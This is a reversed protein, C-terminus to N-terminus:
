AYATALISRGMLEQGARTPHLGMQDGILDSRLHGRWDALPSYVDVVIDAGWQRGDQRIRENVARVRSAYTGYPTLTLLVVRLGAAKAERVMQALNATIYELANTRGIDNIGAEIIVEDYGQGIVQSRLRDLIAATGQGVVGLNAFTRHPLERGLFAVFGSSHATISNGLVATRGAGPDQRKPRLRRIFMGLGFLLATMSVIAVAADLDRFRPNEAKQMYARRYENYARLYRDNAERVERPTIAYKEILEASLIPLRGKRARSRQRRESLETVVQDIRPKSLGFAEAIEAVTFGEDDYM